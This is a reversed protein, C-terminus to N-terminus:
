GNDRPFEIDEAGQDQCSGSVVITEHSFGTLCYRRGVVGRAMGLRCDEIPHDLLVQLGPERVRAPLLAANRAEDLTLKAREEVASDEGVTEKAEM